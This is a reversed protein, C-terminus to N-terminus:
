IKAAIPLAGGGAQGARLMEIIEDEPLRHKDLDLVKLFIRESITLKKKAELPESRMTEILDTLDKYDKDPLYLTELSKRSSIKNFLSIQEQTLCLGSNGIHCLIHFAITNTRDSLRVIRIAFRDATATGTNCFPCTSNQTKEAM